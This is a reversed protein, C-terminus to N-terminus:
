GSRRIGLNFVRSRDSRARGRPQASSGALPIVREARQYAARRASLPADGTHLSKEKERKGAKRARRSLPNKPRELKSNRNQVIETRTISSYRKEKGEGKFREDRRRALMKDLRLHLIREEERVKLRLSREIECAAGFRSSRFRSWIEWVERRSDGNV